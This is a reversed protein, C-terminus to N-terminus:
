IGEIKDGEIKDGMEIIIRSMEIGV